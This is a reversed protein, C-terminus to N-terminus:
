SVLEAVAGRAIIDPGVADVVEVEAMQGPDLSAPVSVIGDIGPAERYSRAQGRCDVLVTVKSGVLAERRSSTISEQIEQLEAMRESVLLPDIAGDLGAAYTGEENSFAFFGCWDLQVAHLFEVLQDHDADTEGPYGIIFNSRLAARPEASRIADIRGRFVDANGFRRMRSLLSGSVHQLSLDFYPVGTSLIAEILADTLEAPHLYLLRVWDVRSGLASVLEVLQDTGRDRGFSGLDQAVLIVERVQLSDVEALIGALDRSRQRGKFLPISCFGCAKDCGEAVKVYAWPVRQRPRPLELLDRTPVATSAARTAIDVPVGAGAVTAEPLAEALERGYREAMCGTVLMEAEPRRRESLEFITDISERRAQEIFACTNVVVLEADDPTGAPVLGDDLLTRALKDSDVENKPCGLTEIWFRRATGPM